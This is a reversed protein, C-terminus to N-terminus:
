MARRALRILQWAAFAICGSGLVGLTVWFVKRDISFVFLWGALAILSPLPYLWM